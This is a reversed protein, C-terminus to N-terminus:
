RLNSILTKLEDRINVLANNMQIMDGSRIAEEATLILQELRLKLTIILENHVNMNVNKNVNVNVNFIQTKAELVVKESRDVFAKIFSFIVESYALGLERCKKKFKEFVDIDYVYFTAKSYRKRSSRTQINDM